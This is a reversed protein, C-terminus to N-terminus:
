IRHSLFFKLKFDGMSICSGQYGAFGLHCFLTRTVKKESPQESLTRYVVVSHIATRWAFLGAEAKHALNLVNEFVFGLFFHLHIHTTHTSPIPADPYCNTTIIRWDPEM